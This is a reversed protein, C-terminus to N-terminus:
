SIYFVKQLLRLATAKTRDLNESLNDNQSKLDRVRKREVELAEQLSVTLDSVNIVPATSKNVVTQLQDALKQKLEVIEEM